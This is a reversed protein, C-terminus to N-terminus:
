DRSLDGATEIGDGYDDNDHGADPASMSCGPLNNDYIWRLYVDQLGPVVNEIDMVIRTVALPFQLWALWCPTEKGGPFFPFPFRWSDM